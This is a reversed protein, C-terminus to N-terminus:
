WWRFWAYNAAIMMISAVLCAVGWLVGQIAGAGVGGPKDMSALFGFALLAPVFLVALSILASRM